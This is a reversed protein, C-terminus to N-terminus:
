VLYRFAHSIAVLKGARVRAETARLRSFGVTRYLNIAVHALNKFLQWLFPPASRCFLWYQLLFVFM